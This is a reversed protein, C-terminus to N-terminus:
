RSGVRSSVRSSFHIKEILSKKLRIKTKSLLTDSLLKIIILEILGITTSIASEYKQFNQEIYPEHVENYLYGIIMFSIFGVIIFQLITAIWTYRSTVIIFTLYGAIFLYIDLTLQIIVWVLLYILLCTLTQLIVNKM